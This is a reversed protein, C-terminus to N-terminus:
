GLCNPRKKLLTSTIEVWTYSTGAFGGEKLLIRWAAPTEQFHYKSYTGTKLHWM